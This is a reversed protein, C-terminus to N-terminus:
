IIQSRASHQSEAPVPLDGSAMKLGRRLGGAVTAGPHFVGDQRRSILEVDDVTCTHKRALHINSFQGIPSHSWRDHPAVFVKFHQLWLCVVVISPFVVVLLCGALLAATRALTLGESLLCTRNRQFKAPRPESTRSVLRRRNPCCTM